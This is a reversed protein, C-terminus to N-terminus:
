QGDKKQQNKRAGSLFKHEYWTAGGIILVALAWSEWSHPTCWIITGAFLTTAIGFALSIAAARQEAAKDIKSTKKEM